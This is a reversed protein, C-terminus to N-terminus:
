GKGLFYPTKVGTQIPRIFSCSILGTIAIIASLLFGSQYDGMLDFLYGTLFPGLAGGSAFGLTITGLIAGHSKIGFIDVIMTSELPVSGGSSLGFFAAFLTFSWISGLRTLAFLTVAIIFFYILLSRKNGLRDAVSGLAVCGTALFAGCVAFVNAAAASSIGLDTIHPVLHTNVAMLVYGLAFFTIIMMWYQRTRIAEKVSLGRDNSVPQQKQERTNNHLVPGTKGPDRKLLQALILGFVLVIGGMIIYSFRWDYISILWNAAPPAVLQGIGTGASVIGAMLSRRKFFWRAITSLLSTFVGSMGLGVIIGYFLYFQWISHVMAMLLYGAGLLCCCLTMVFRPGLRDHLRGMFIAGVGQGLMSLTVAGSTLARSWEFDNLIPKFFVGITLRSGYALIVLLLAAAAIFYGYSYRYWSKSDKEATNM